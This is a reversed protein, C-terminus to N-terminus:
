SADGTSDYNPKGRAKQAEARRLHADVNAPVRLQADLKSSHYDYPLRRSLEAVTGYPNSALLAEFTEANVAAGAACAELFTMMAANRSDGARILLTYLAADPEVAPESPPTRLVHDMFVHMTSPFDPPSLTAYMRMMIEVLERKEMTTVTFRTRIFAFLSEAQDLHHERACRRLLSAWIMFPVAGDGDSHTSSCLKVLQMASPMTLGCLVDNIVGWSAGTLVAPDILRKVDRVVLDRMGGDMKITNTSAMLKALLRLQNLQVAADASKTTLSGPPLATGSCHVPDTHRVRVGRRNVEHFVKLAREIDHAAACWFLVAHAVTFPVTACEQTSPDESQVTGRSSESTIRRLVASPDEGDIAYLFAKWWLDILQPAISTLACVTFLSEWVSEEAIVSSASTAVGSATGPTVQERTEAAETEAGVAAAVAASRSASHLACGVYYGALDGIEHRNIHNVQGVVVVADEAARTAPPVLFVLSRLIAAYVRAPPEVLDVDRMEHLVMRVESDRRVLGSSLLAIYFEELARTQFLSSVSKHPNGGVAVAAASPGESRLLLPAWIEKLLRVDEAQLPQNETRRSLRQAESEPLAKLLTAQLTVRHPLLTEELLSDRYGSRRDELLSTFSHRASVVEDKVQAAWELQVAAAAVSATSARDPVTTASSADDKRLVSEPSSSLDSKTKGDFPPPRNSVASSCWRRQTRANPIAAQSGRATSSLVPHATRASFVCATCSVTRCLRATCAPTSLFPRPIGVRQRLQMNAVPLRCTACVFLRSLISLLQNLFLPPPTFPRRQDDTTHSLSLSLFLFTGCSVTRIGDPFLLLFLIFYAAHM